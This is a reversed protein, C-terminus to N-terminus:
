SGKNNITISDLEEQSNIAGAGGLSQASLASNTSTTATLSTATNGVLTLASTRTIAITGGNNITMNNVSGGAEVAILGGVGAHSATISGDNNLIYDGAVSTSITKVSSTNSRSTSGSTNAVVEAAGITASMVGTATNNITNKGSGAVLNYALPLSASGGGAFSSGLASNLTAVGTAPDYATITRTEGPFFDGPGADYRGVTIRQGVYTAPGGKAITVTTAGAAPVSGFSANTQTATGMLVAYKTRNATAGTNLVTNNSITGSNTITKGLGEFQYIANNSDKVGSTANLNGSNSASGDSGGAGTCFVSSSANYPSELSGSCGAYVMTSLAPLVSLVALHIAKRRLYPTKM